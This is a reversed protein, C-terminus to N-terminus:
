IKEIKYTSNNTKFNHEDIIETIVSTLWTYVGNVYPPLILSTGIEPKEILEKGRGDEDFKVFRYEEVEFTKGDTTRIIRYM